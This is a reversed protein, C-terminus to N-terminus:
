KPSLIFKTSCFLGTNLKFGLTFSMSKPASLTLVRAEGNLREDLNLNKIAIVIGKIIKLDGYYSGPGTSRIGYKV